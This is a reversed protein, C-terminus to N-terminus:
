RDVCTIPPRRASDYIGGSLSMKMAKDEEPIMLKSVGNRARFEHSNNM